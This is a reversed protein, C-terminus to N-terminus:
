PYKCVRSVQLTGTNQVSVTYPYVATQPRYHLARQTPSCCVYNQTDIETGKSMLPVGCQYIPTLVMSVGAFLPAIGTREM